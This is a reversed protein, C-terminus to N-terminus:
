ASFSRPLAIRCRCKVEATCHVNGIRVQVLDCVTLDGAGGLLYQSIHIVADDVYKRASPRHLENDEVTSLISDDTLAIFLNDFHIDTHIVNADHLYNVGLLTQDLATTVLTQQFVNDKQLEQLTRLSMGLPYM